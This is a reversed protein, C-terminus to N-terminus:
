VFSVSMQLRIGEAIIDFSLVTLWSTDQLQEKGEVLEPKLVPYYNLNFRLQGREKGDKLIPLQINEISADDLLQQLEFTTAGLTTDKRHDNYDMVNLVLPDQLSNVLIFKSEM